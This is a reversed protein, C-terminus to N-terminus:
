VTLKQNNRRNFPRLWRPMSDSEVCEIVRNMSQICFEKDLVQFESKKWMLMLPEWVYADFYDWRNPMDDGEEWQVPPLKFTGEIRVQPDFKELSEIHKKLITM